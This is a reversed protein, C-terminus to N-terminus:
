KKSPVHLFTGYNEQPKANPSELNNLVPSSVTSVSRSPSGIDVDSIRSTNASRRQLITSGELNKQLVPVPIHKPKKIVRYDKKVLVYEQVYETVIVYKKENPDGGCCTNGM